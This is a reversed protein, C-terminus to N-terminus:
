AGLAHGDCRASELYKDFRGTGGAVQAAAVAIIQPLAVETSRAGRKTHGSIQELIVDGLM